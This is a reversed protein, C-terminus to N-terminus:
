ACRTSGGERVSVYYEARSRAMAAPWERKEPPLQALLVRWAHARLWAADAPVGGPQRCLQRLQYVDAVAHGPLVDTANLLQAFARQRQRQEAAAAGAPPPM